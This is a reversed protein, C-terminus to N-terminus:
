NQAYYTITSYCSIILSKKHLESFIIALSLNSLLSLKKKKLRKDFDQPGKPIVIPSSSLPNHLKLDFCSKRKPLTKLMWIKRFVLHLNTKVCKTMNM